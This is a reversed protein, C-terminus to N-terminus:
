TPNIPFWRGMKFSEIMLEIVQPNLQRYKFYYLVLDMYNDLQKYGKEDLNGDYDKWLCENVLLYCAFRENPFIDKEEESYTFQIPKRRLIWYILYAIVKDTKTHEIDHFVKLREIDSYYDLLVHYLIRENCEVQGVYGAEKIFEYITKELEAFRSSFREDGVQTMLEKYDKDM